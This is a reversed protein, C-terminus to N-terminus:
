GDYNFKLLNRFLNALEDSLKQSNLVKQLLKPKNVRSVLRLFKIHTPGYNGKPSEFFAMDDYSFEYVGDESFQKSNQPKELNINNGGLTMLVSVFWCIITNTSLAIDNLGEFCTDLIDFYDSDTAHESSNNIAKMADYAFMTRDIDTVIKDYHQQLRTSVLTKLESKGDIYTIESISFLELGGALKSKQRRAGKALVSIRGQDPTLVTLIRDAESFNIRKLIIANTSIQKM